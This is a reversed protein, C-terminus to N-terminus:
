WHSRLSGDATGLMTAGPLAAAQEASPSAAPVRLAAPLAGCIRCQERQNVNFTMLFWCISSAPFKVCLVLEVKQLALFFM